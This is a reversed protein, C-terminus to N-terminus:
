EGKQILSLLFDYEAVAVRADWEAHHEGRDGWTGKHKLGWTERFKAVRAKADSFTFVSAVHVMTTLDVTRYSFQGWTKPLYKRLFVLDFGGVNWGLAQVQDKGFTSRM